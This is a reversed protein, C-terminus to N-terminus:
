HLWSTMGKTKLTAKMRKLFEKWIRYYFYGYTLGLRAAIERLTYGQLYFEGITRFRGPQEEVAEHLLTFEEERCFSELFDNGAEINENVACFSFQNHEFKVQERVYHIAVHRIVAGMFTAPKSNGKFLPLRRSIAIFMEQLLDDIDSKPLHYTKAFKRAVARADDHVSQPIFDPKLQPIFDPTM